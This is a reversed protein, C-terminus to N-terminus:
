PTHASALSESAWRQRWVTTVDSGTRKILSMEELVSQDLRLRGHVEFFGTSVGYQTADGSQGAAAGLLRTVDNLSSFPTAQRQQVLRRAGSLDLQPVIAYIVEASATNLNVPAFMPLVTVYPKLLQISVSSLGLWALEEVRQPLLPTDPAADASPATAKLLGNKLTTLQEAPVGVLDFLKGFAKEASPSIQQAQVLNMVNMRSQADVIQGSLFAEETDDSANNDLSLFTSLRAEALPTAWPETLNDSAGGSLADERLILRSWDLAGTLIWSSQIRAREATEVEVGRWQQWLAASALTAVLTVTLM